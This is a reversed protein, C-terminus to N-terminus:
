EPKTLIGARMIISELGSQFTTNGPVTPKPATAMVWACYVTSFGIGAVVVGAAGYLYAGAANLGVGMLATVIKPAVLSRPHPSLVHKLSAIQGCAFITSSLVVLPLLYSVSGYAPPLLLRFLAKHLLAAAGVAALSVLLCVALLQNIVHHTNRMRTDDTGDGARSFLVPSVLQTLFASAMSIPYYGIQYLTQYVGVGRTSTFAALAWRDSSMQAWTFIGWTGFPWAYTFMQRRLQREVAPDADSRFAPSSLIARRFLLVQSVLVLTGAVAFGAMATGGGGGFHRVLVVACGFRLWVGLGQHWAVIARQRAANQIGDFAGSIGSLIAFALSWGALLVSEKWRSGALVAVALGGVVGVLASAAGLMRAAARLYEGLVNAESSSAYFRGGANGLPGFLIQQVLAAATGGLALHGYEEPRLCHTLLPVGLVGGVAATIQGTLVWTAESALRPFRPQTSYSGPRGTM